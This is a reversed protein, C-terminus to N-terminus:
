VNYSFFTGLIRAFDTLIFFVSDNDFLDWDRTVRRQAAKIAIAEAATCSIEDLKVPGSGNEKRVKNLLTLM